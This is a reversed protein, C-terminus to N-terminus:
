NHIHFLQIQACVREVFSHVSEIHWESKQANKFAKDPALCNIISQKTYLKGMISVAYIYKKRM